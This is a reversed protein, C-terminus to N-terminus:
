SREKRQKSRLRVSTEYTEDGVVKALTYDDRLMKQKIEPTLVSVDIPIIPKSGCNILRTIPLNCHPCLDLKDAMSHVVDFEGHFDCLYTYTPM